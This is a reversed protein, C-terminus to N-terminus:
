FTTIETGKLISTNEFLYSLYLNLQTKGSEIQLTGITPRLFFLFLTLLGTLSCFCVRHLYYLPYLPSCTSMRLYTHLQHPSLKYLIVKLDKSPFYLVPKNLKNQRSVKVFWNPLGCVGNWVIGSSQYLSHKCQSPFPPPPVSPYTQIDTCM